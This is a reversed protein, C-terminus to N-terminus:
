DIIQFGNDYDSIPCHITCKASLNLIRYQKQILDNGDGLMSIYNFYTSSPAHYKGHFIFNCKAKFGMM